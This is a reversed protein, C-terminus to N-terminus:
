RLRRDGPERHRVFGKAAGVVVVFMHVVVVWCTRELRHLVLHFPGIEGDGVVVVVVVGHVLPLTMHMKMTSDDVDNRYHRSLARRNPLTAKPM